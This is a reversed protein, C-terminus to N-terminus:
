KNFKYRKKTAGSAKLRELMALEQSDPELTGNEWAMVDTPPVRLLQAMQIQTMETYERLTKIDEPTM